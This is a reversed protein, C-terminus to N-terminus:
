KMMLDKFSEGYPTAPISLMDAVTAAIDAFSKRVGLNVGAKIQDGYVLIPVYERTHDTGKYAPDNGHDAIFFIVDDENM